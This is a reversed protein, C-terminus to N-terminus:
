LYDLFHWGNYQPMMMDLLVVGVDPNRQLARVGEQGDRASVVSYGELKLLTEMMESIAVDDEVILIKKMPCERFASYGLVGAKSSKAQFILTTACEAILATRLGLSHKIRTGRLVRM